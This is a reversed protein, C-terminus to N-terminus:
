KIDKAKTVWEAADALALSLADAPSDAFRMMATEANGIRDTFVSACWQNGDRPSLIEVADVWQAAADLRNELNLAKAPKPEYGEGCEKWSKYLVDHLETLLGFTDNMDNKYASDIAEKCQKMLAPLDLMHIHSM